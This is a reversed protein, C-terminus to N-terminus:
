MRSVKTQTSNELPMIPLYNQKDDVDDATARESDSLSPPDGSDGPKEGSSPTQRENVFYKACAFVFVPLLILLIVASMINKNAFIFGCLGLVSSAIYLLFVSQRQTLGMDILKHHLHSRDSVAPSAGHSIRRIIAFIVDFIPLGIILIPIALSIAAYSKLLGQVSIAALTFGLFAAGTEGMFIKAPNFNFPLFGLASGALAATLVPALVNGTTPLASMSVFFLSFASISSIGAALGDLGDIFNIANTIGVIWLITLPTSIFPSFEIVRDPSFPNTFFDIQMDSILVYCIAAALQFLLKHLPRLTYKDDLFGCIILIFIGALLGIVSRDLVITGIALNYLMAALFGLIIALGGLLAIPNKHMRRSDKPIDVAGLRFAMRKVLPTTIFSVFLAIIITIIYEIM